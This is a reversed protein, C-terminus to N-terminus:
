TSTKNKRITTQISKIWLEKLQSATEEFIDFEEKSFKSFDHDVARQFLQNSFQNIYNGVIQKHYITGTIHETSM